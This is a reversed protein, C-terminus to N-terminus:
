RHQSKKQKKGGRGLVEFLDGPLGSSGTQVAPRLFRSLYTKM